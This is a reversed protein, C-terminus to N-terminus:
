GRRRTSRCMTARSQKREARAYFGAGDKGSANGKDRGIGYPPDTLLLDFRGLHPLIEASDGHYITIGGHDYYPALSFLASSVVGPVDETNATTM